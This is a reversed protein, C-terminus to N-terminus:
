NEFPIFKISPQGTVKAIYYKDIDEAFCLYKLEKGDFSNKLTELGERSLNDFAFSINFVRPKHQTYFYYSGDSGTVDATIDNMPPALELSYRDGDIVRYIKDYKPGFNTSDFDGFTFAIFADSAQMNTEEKERM